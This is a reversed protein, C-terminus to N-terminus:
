NQGQNGEHEKRLKTLIENAQEKSDCPFLYGLFKSKEIVILNDVEKAITKIEM